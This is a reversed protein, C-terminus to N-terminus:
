SKSEDGSTTSQQTDASEAGNCRHLRLVVDCCIDTRTSYVLYEKYDVGDRYASLRATGHLSWSGM